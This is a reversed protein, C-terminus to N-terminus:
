AASPRLEIGGSRAAVVRAPTVGRRARPTGACRASAPFRHPGFRFRLPPRFVFGTTIASIVMADIKALFEGTKRNKRLTEDGGRQLLTILYRSCASASALFLKSPVPRRRRSRVVFRKSPLLLVLTPLRFRAVPIAAGARPQQSLAAHGLAVLGPLFRFRHLTQKVM